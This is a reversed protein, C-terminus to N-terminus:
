LFFKVITHTQPLSECATGEEKWLFPVADARLGDVGKIKWRILMNTMEILVDPSRYNLDPQISFFRHLYYQGAAEDWAWNSDEMGKMLLRADPFREPTDSWIYYDRKPSDKSQRAELFWPHENSTHNIAIDFILRIGREHAEHLFDAFVRDQEERSADAPLGLIDTRIEEFHSIDFGADKMPSKLIPLLWLCTVGLDQLYPLKEQLGKVDRNLFDVYASYVVVDKYWTTDVHREQSFYEQKIGQLEQLFAELKEDQEQYLEQWLQKLKQLSHM